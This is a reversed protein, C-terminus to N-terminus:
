YNPPESNHPMYLLVSLQFNTFRNLSKGKGLNEANKANSAKWKLTLGLYSKLDRIM